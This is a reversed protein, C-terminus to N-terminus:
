GNSRLAADLERIARGLADRDPLTKANWMAVVKEAARKLHSSSDM